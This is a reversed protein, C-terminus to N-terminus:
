ARAISADVGRRDGASPGRLQAAAGAAGPAVGHRAARLAVAFTLDTSRALLAQAEGISETTRLEDHRPAVLRYPDQEEDRRELLVMDQFDLAGRPVYARIRFWRSWRAFVYWTAHFTAGYWAPFFRQAPEDAVHVIGARHYAERLIGLRSEGTLEQMRAEDRLAKAFAHEGHVTLVVHGGLRTVRRLEALWVDQLKEDVHTFVSHNYVLDFFGDPLALPPLAQNTKATAFPLHETVWAIADADIDTAHLETDAAVDQLWTLM